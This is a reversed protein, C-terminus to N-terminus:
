RVSIILVQFGKILCTKLSEKNLESNYSKVTKEDDWFDYNDGSSVYRLEVYTDASCEHEIADLSRIISDFVDNKDVDKDIFFEFIIDTVDTFEIDKLKCIDTLYTLGNLIKSKYKEKIKSNKEEMETRLTQIKKNYFENTDRLEISMNLAEYTKIYKM